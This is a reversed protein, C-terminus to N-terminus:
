LLNIAVLTSTQQHITIIIKKCNQFQYPLLVQPLSKNTEEFVHVMNGRFRAVSQFGAARLIDGCVEDLENWYIGGEFDQWM